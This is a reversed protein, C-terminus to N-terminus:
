LAGPDHQCTEFPPSCRALDGHVTGRTPDGSAEPSDGCFWATDVVAYSGSTFRLTAVQAGVYQGAGAVAHLLPWGADSHGAVITVDAQLDFVGLQRTCGAYEGLLRRRCGFGASPVNTVIHGSGNDLLEIDPNCGTSKPANVVPAVCAGMPAQKRPSSSELREPMTITATASPESPGHGNFSRVRYTAIQGPLRFRHVFERETPDVLGARVFSDKAKVQVEFGAAGRASSVWSLTVAFPSEPRATLSAPPPPATRATPVRITVEPSWAGGASRARYVYTVGRAAGHVHRRLRERVAPDRAPGGKEEFSDRETVDTSADAANASLARREIEITKALDGDRDLTVEILAVGVTRITMRPANSLALTRVEDTGDIVEAGPLALPAERAVAARADGASSADSTPSAIAPADRTGPQARGCGAVAAVLAM